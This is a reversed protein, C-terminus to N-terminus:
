RTGRLAKWRVVTQYVSSWFAIYLGRWGIRFGGRPGVMWLFRVPAILASLVLRAVNPHLGEAELSTYREFKREYSTREPYSDHYLTGRLEGVQGTVTWREHLAADGGAVPKATLRAKETRFVRVLSENDWGFARVVEGCFLTARRVRYADVDEREPDSHILSARLEEDLREDADLMFTWATEVRELAFRRADVFNTWARELVTAGFRQAVAKTEDRSGADLVLV